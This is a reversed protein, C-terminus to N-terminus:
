RSTAHVYRAFIDFEINVQSGKSLAGLTTRQLTHPILAVTVWNHHVGVITLSVGDIAISGKAVVLHRFRAPFSIRAVIGGKGRKVDNVKGVTDIHGLVFHGGYPEGYRLPLEVNVKDGKQIRRLTTRRLTEPMIVVNYLGRATSTVTLCVGNVAVSDGRRLHARPIALAVAANERLTQRRRVTGRSIIIGTFVFTFDFHL